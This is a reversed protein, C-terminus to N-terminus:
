KNIVLVEWFEPHKFKKKIQEARKRSEFYTAEEIKFVKHMLDIDSYYKLFCNDERLHNINLHKLVYKKM